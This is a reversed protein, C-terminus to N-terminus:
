DPALGGASHLASCLAPGERFVPSPIEYASFNQKNSLLRQRWNLVYKLDEYMNYLLCFDGLGLRGSNRFKGSSVAGM